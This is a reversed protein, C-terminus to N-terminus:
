HSRYHVEIVGCILYHLCTDLAINEKSEHEGIPFPQPLGIEQERERDRNRYPEGVREFACWIERWMGWVEGVRMM